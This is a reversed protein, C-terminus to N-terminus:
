TGRFACYLAAIAELEGKEARELLKEIQPDSEDDCNSKPLLFFAAGFALAILLSIIYANRKM